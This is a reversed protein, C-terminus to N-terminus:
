IDSKITGFSELDSEVIDLYGTKQVVGDSSPSRDMKINKALEVLESGPRGAGLGDIQFRRASRRGPGPDSPWRYHNALIM